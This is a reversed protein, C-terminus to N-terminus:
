RVLIQCFAFSDVRIFHKSSPRACLYLAVNQRYMSFYHGTNKTFSDKCTRDM